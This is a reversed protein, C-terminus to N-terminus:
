PRFAIVKADDFPEVTLPSPVPSGDGQDFREVVRVDRRIQVCEVLSISQGVRSQGHVVQRAVLAVVAPSELFREIDLPRM